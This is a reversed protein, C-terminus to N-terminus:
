KGRNDILKQQLITWVNFLTYYLNLGSPFQNFLVLMFIPMFYIMAKQKPDTITMKSQIITSGAMLVPLLNFQNGYMPLSFPLTFITDARSLDDIWGPIFSAGRLQITSRFVTYLAALLPLQLLIPVCGGLPNIGHEKYLKMTEKQYRQPDGKYKEKLELLLPQVKSMEKMSRYSKKTLPYVLIKVLISFIIIVIGYNPIFSNFFKLLAVIPLSIPRFTREYWGHNLVLENLDNGYLALISNDLPGLYVRFSDALTEKNKIVNLSANYYREVVNNVKIGKGGFTVSATKVNEPILAIVFYKTRIAAWSCLGSYTKDEVVEESSLSFNELEDGMSAYIDSYYYDEGRNEENSPLGNQWTLQYEDNLFLEETQSDTIFQLDVHYRNGHFTIRKEIRQGNYIIFYVISYKEDSKINITSREVDPYFYYQDLAVKNGQASIFHFGFGNDLKENILNVATKDWNQYAKLSFALIKGGGKNSIQASILPTEIRIVKEQQDSDIIISQQKDGPASQGIESAAAATEAPPPVQEPNVKIKEASGETVANEPSTVPIDPVPNLYKYYAPLLIIIITILVIALISKKDM